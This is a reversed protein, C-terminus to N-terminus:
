EKKTLDTSEEAAMRKRGLFRAGLIGLEYLLYIPVSMLTMNFVDPTPTILAGLFFSVLFAYKRYKALWAASVIRARCCSSSSPERCWGRARLFKLVFDIYDGIKVIATPARRTAM